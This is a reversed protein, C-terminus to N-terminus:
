SHPMTSKSLLQLLSLNMFDIHHDLAVNSSLLYSLRYIDESSSTIYMSLVL